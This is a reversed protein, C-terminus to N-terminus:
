GGAERRYWPLMLKEALIVMGYLALSMVVLYLLAAFAM